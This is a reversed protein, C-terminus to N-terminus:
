GGPPRSRTRPPRGVARDGLKRTATVLTALAAGVEDDRDLRYHGRSPQDVARIARLARPM